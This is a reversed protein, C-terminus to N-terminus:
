AVNEILEYLHEGLLALGAMIGAGPMIRRLVSGVKDRKRKKKASHHGDAEESRNTM